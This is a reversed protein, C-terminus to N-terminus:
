GNLGAELMARAIPGADSGGGPHPSTEDGEVAVAVVMPNDSGTNYAVVWATTRDSGTEATGTKAAIKAADTRMSQGTGYPKSVVDLMMAQLKKATDASIPQGLEEPDTTKLKELDSSLVQDILYPKMLTGQNAVAAGVMAMQMPTVQVDSQGIGALPVQAEDLNDPFVSETVPMPIQLSEDFGFARAQKRLAEAGVTVASQGFSTNCSRAFAEAMTPHGDGCQMGTINPLKTNTGPLTIAAGGEVTSDPNFKGSELMAAATIIKFASGPPYRNGAIARNVLPKNPDKSLEESRKLVKNNDSSSLETPDYSPSSYLTLIKGTKAELAVAAGKRGGLGKAAAQQMRPNLTLSVGGGQRDAGTLLNQVRQTWLSPANGELITDAYQELGTASGLNVSFWGTVPAYLAKGPYTREFRKTKPIPTSEAVARGAVVIPGRDRESAHLFTRSNRSDANLRPAAIFQIYTAALALAALMAVVLIYLRRIQANM